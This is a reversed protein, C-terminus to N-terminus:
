DHLIVLNGDLHTDGTEDIKGDVESNDGSVARLQYETVAMCDADNMQEITFFMDRIEGQTGLFATGDGYTIFNTPIPALSASTKQFIYDCCQKPFCSVSHFEDDAV